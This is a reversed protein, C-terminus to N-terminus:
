PLPAGITPGDVVTIGDGIPGVDLALRFRTLADFMAAALPLTALAPEDFWQKLEIFHDDTLGHPDIVYQEAFSVAARPAGALLEDDYWRPLAAVLEDTLGADIAARYRVALEAACGLVTAIRLRCLELVMPDCGSSWLGAYLEAFREDAVPLLGFVENLPTPGDTTEALWTM